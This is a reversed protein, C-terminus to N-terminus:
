EDDEQERRWEPNNLNLDYVEITEGTTHNTIWLHSDECNAFVEFEDDDHNANVFPELVSALAEYLCFIISNTIDDKNFLESKNSDYIDWFDTVADPQPLQDLVNLCTDITDNIPDAYIDVLYLRNEM